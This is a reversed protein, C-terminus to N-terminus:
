GHRTFTPVYNNLCARADNHGGEVLRCVFGQQVGGRNRPAFRDQKPTHPRAREGQFFRRWTSCRWKKKGDKEGRSKQAAPTYMTCCHGRIIFVGCKEHSPKKQRSARRTTLRLCSDNRSRSLAPYSDGSPAPRVGGLGGEM